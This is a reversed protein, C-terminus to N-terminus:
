AARSVHSLLKEILFHALEPTAAPHFRPVGPIECEESVVALLRPDGQSALMMGTCPRPAVEIRPYPTRKFGEALVLDVREPLHDLFAVLDAGDLGNEVDGYMMWRGPSRLGVAQAGAQKFRWTDKGPHDIQGGHVDHKIAAVRLGRRVLEPILKEMLTTKGAGSRGVICVVPTM